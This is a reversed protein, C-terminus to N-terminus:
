SAADRSSWAEARDLTDLIFGTKAENYAIRDDRYRRALERKLTAYADRTAVDARLFDRFLLHRREWASGAGCVHVQVARPRDGAPRFYRHEDDRARFGVGAREIAAVYATEDGVDPVSVQVDIVPKAALGPVSTSGVHDIRRAVPGLERGLRDRWADFMARWAPDYEVVEIPDRRTRGSAAIIEFGPEHAELVDLTVRTRLEAPLEDVAVGRSAAELAYRDLLTARPGFRRHLRHWAEGPDGPAAPNVGAARLREALNADM